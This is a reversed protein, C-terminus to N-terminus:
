SAARVRPRLVEHHLPTVQKAPWKMEKKKVSHLLGTIFVRERNQPLGHDKCNLVSWSIEYLDPKVLAQLIQYFDERHCTVVGQRKRFLVNQTPPDEVLRDISLCDGWKSM